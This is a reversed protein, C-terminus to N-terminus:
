GCHASLRETWFRYPYDRTPDNVPLMRLGKASFFGCAESHAKVLLGDAGRRRAQRRAECLLQSGIGQRHRDSRVYIGHLLMGRKRLPTESRNVPECAATGIVGTRDEAVIVFLHQLDQPSYSYIPLSLRKVRDPISWSMIASSIVQNISSLDEPKAERVITGFLDRNRYAGNGLCVSRAEGPVATRLSMEHSFSNM